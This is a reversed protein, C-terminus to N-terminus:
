IREGILVPMWRSKTMIEYYHSAPEIVVYVHPRGAEDRVLLGRVGQRVKTWVGRELILNAPVEVLEAGAQGWKGAEISARWTWGTPPLRRSEHRACGWRAIRLGGEYWVPLISPAAQRHFQVEREGGRGISPRRVSAAKEVGIGGSSNYRNSRRRQWIRGKAPCRPSYSLGRAKGASIANEEQVVYLGERM